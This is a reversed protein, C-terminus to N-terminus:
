MNSIFQATKVGTKTATSTGGASAADPGGGSGGTGGAGDKKEREEKAMMPRLTIAASTRPPRRALHVCRSLAFYCERLRPDARHGRHRVGPRAATVVIRSHHYSLRRRAARSENIM